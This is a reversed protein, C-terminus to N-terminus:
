ALTGLIGDISGCCRLGERRVFERMLEADSFKEIRGFTRRNDVQEKKTAWRCNSPEYNGDNDVRDLSHAKSPRRGMDALFNEYSTWRQCVVIGRAGYNTWKQSKPSRCREHMSLWTAYEPTRNLAEGHRRNNSPKGINAKATMRMSNASVEARRCGCSTSLGRMLSTGNVLKETGCECRCIWYTKQSKPGASAIVIWRQFRRGILQLRQTM